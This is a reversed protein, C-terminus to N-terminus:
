SKFIEVKIVNQQTIPLTTFEPATALHATFFAQLEAPTGNVVLAGGAARGDLLTSVLNAVDFASATLGNELVSVGIVAGSHAKFVEYAKGYLTKTAYVDVMKEALDPRSALVQNIKAELDGQSIVTSTKLIDLGKTTAAPTNILFYIDVAKLQSDKDGLAAFETAVSDLKGIDTGAAAQAQDLLAKKKDVDTRKQAAELYKGSLEYYDAQRDPQTLDNPNIKATVFARYDTDAPNKVAYAVAIESYHKKVDANTITTPDATILRLTNAIEALETPSAKDFGVANLYDYTDEVLEDPNCSTLTLTPDAECQEGEVKARILKAALIMKDRDTPPATRSLAESALTNLGKTPNDLLTWISNRLDTSTASSTSLEYLQEFIQVRVGLDTGSPGTTIADFAEALLDKVKERQADDMEHYAKDTELIATFFKQEAPETIGTLIDRALGPMNIARYIRFMHSPSMIRGSGAVSINTLQNLAKAGIKDANDILYKIQEESLQSGGQLVKYAEIYKKQPEETLKSELGERIIEEYKEASYYAAALHGSLKEQFTARAEGTPVDGAFVGGTRFAKIASIRDEPDITTDPNTILDYLAAIRDAKKDPTETFTTDVAHIGEVLQQTLVLANPNASASLIPLLKEKATDVNSTTIPELTRASDALLSDLFIVAQPDNPDFIDTLNTALLGSTARRHYNSWIEATIAGNGIATAIDASTPYLKEFALVYTTDNEGSELYKAIADHAVHELDATKFRDYEAILYDVITTHKSFDATASAIALANKAFDISPDFVELYSNALDPNEANNGIVILPYLASATIQDSNALAILVDPDSVEGGIAEFVALSRDTINKEYSSAIQPLSLKLKALKTTDVTTIGAGELNELCRTILAIETINNDILSEVAEKWKGVKIFEHAAKLPDAADLNLTGVDLGLAMARAIFEPKVTGDAEHQFLKNLDSGPGLILTTEGTSISYRVRIEHNTGGESVIYKAIIGWSAYEFDQPEGVLFDITTKAKMYADTPREKGVMVLVDERTLPHRGGTATHFYNTGDFKYEEGNVFFKEGAAVTPIEFDASTPAATAAPLAGLREKLAKLEAVKSILAQLATNIEAMKARIEAETTLSNPDVNSVQELATKLTDVESELADLQHTRSPTTMDLITQAEALADDVLTKQDIMEQRAQAVEPAVPPAVPAAAPAQPIGPRAGNPNATIEPHAAAWSAVLFYRKDVGEQTSIYVSKSIGELNRLSTPDDFTGAGDETRQYALIFNLPGNPDELMTRKAPDNSYTAWQAPDASKAIIERIVADNAQVYPHTALERLMRDATEGMKKYYETDVSGDPNKRVKSLDYKTADAGGEVRFIIQDRLTAASPDTQIFQVLDHLAQRKADDLEAADGLAYTKLFDDVASDLNDPVIDKIHGAVIQMEVSRARAVLDEPNIQGSSLAKYLKAIETGAAKKAATCAPGDGGIGEFKKSVNIAASVFYAQQNALLQYDPSQLAFENLNKPAAAFQAEIQALLGQLEELKDPTEIADAQEMLAAIDKYLGGVMPDMKQLQELAIKEINGRIEDPVGEWSFAGLFEEKKFAELKAESFEANATSFDETEFRELERKTADFDVEVTLADIRAGLDAIFAASDADAFKEYDAKIGAKAAEIQKKVEESLDKELFENLTKVLGDDAKEWDVPKPNGQEDAGFLASEVEKKATSADDPADAAPPEGAPAEAGPAPEGTPAGAPAQPTMFVLRSEKAIADLAVKLVLNKM